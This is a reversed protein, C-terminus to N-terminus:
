GRASWLPPPWLSSRAEFSAHRKDRQLVDDVLPSFLSCHTPRRYLFLSRHSLPQISDASLGLSTPFPGSCTTMLPYELDCCEGKEQQAWTYYSDLNLFGRQQVFVTEEHTQESRRGLRSEVPPLPVPVTFVRGLRALAWKIVAALDHVNAFRIDSSFTAALGPGRRDPAGEPAAGTPSSLFSRLLSNVNHLSLDLAM